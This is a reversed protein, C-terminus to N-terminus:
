RPSTRNTEKKLQYKLNILIIQILFKNLLLSSPFISVHFGCLAVTHSEKSVSSQKCLLFASVCPSRELENVPSPWQLQQEERQATIKYTSPKVCSNPKVQAGVEPRPVQSLEQNRGNCRGDPQFM